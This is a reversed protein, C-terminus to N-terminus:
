TYAIASRTNAMQKQGCLYVRSEAYIQALENMSLWGCKRFHEIFAKPPFHWCQPAPPLDADHVDEWFALAEIHAKLTAFEDNSLPVALAEHQTKLM